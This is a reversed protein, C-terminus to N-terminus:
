SAAPPVLIEYVESSTGANFENWILWGLSTTTGGVSPHGLTPLAGTETDGSAGSAISLDSVFQGSTAVDDYSVFLWASGTSDSDWGGGNYSSVKFKAGGVADTDWLYGTM